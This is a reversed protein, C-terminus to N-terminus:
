DSGWCWGAISMFAVTDAVSAPSDTKRGLATGVKYVTGPYKSLDYDAAWGFLCHATHNDNQVGIGVPIDTRGAAELYRSSLRTNCATSHNLQAETPYTSPLLRPVLPRTM